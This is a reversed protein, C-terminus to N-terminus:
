PLKSVSPKTLRKVTQKVERIIQHNTINVDTYRFINSVASPITSTLTSRGLGRQELGHKMMSALTYPDDTRLHRAAAYDIYQKGYTSYTAVTNKPRNAEIWDHIETRLGSRTFPANRIM